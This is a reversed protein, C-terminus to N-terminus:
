RSACDGGALGRAAADRAAEVPATFLLAGGLRGAPVPEPTARRLYTRLVRGPHARAFAAYIEPDKEGTDGVLVLPLGPFRAALRELVPEKYGSLTGPGVNRLYLAAPPFRHRRMFREVRPALQEPSGSVVALPAGGAALCRYLAAMGLVVPQTEEDQLLTSRLLGVKSTVNTVAVTDDFDSVLLFPADPPVVLVSGRAVVEGSAVVVEHRGPPFPAGPAAELVVEFEGDHGSRVRGVRGLLRAEVEAGERNSALLERATRVPRPGGKGVADELVRGSIWVRDQRGLSPPLLLGPGEGAARRPGALALLALIAALPPVPRPM